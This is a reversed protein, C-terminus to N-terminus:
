FTIPMLIGFGEHDGNAEVRIATRVDGRKADVDFSLSVEDSEAGLAEALAKLYGANITLKVQRAEGEKPQVARWDPFEGEVLPQTLTGGDRDTATAQGNVHIKPSFRRRKIAHDIIALPVIGRESDEEVDTAPVVAMMRGNTAVLVPNAPDSKDFLVGNFAYRGIERAAAKHIKHKADFQM